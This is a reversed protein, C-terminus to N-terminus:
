FVIFISKNHARVSQVRESRHNKERREYQDRALCWNNILDSGIIIVYTTKAQWHSHFTYKNTREIASFGSMVTNQLASCDIHHEARLCLFDWLCEYVCMKMRIIHEELQKTNIRKLTKIYFATTETYVKKGCALTSTERQWVPQLLYKMKVSVFM